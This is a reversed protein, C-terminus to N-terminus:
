MGAAPGVAFQGFDVLRVAVLFLVASVGIKALLKLKPAEM